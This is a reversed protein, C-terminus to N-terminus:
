PAAGMPAAPKERSPLLLTVITGQGTPSVISMSGNMEWVISRCISLGLGNGHRKTSFFPEQVRALQEAPIGSGTDALVLEVGGEQVRRARITLTGGAPMAERANTALNLILQELEGQAGIVHPMREPVSVDLTIAHRRMGDDLVALTTQVAAAVDGQGLTQASSRAFSLMGGFIRRCVRVSEELQELDKGLVALLETPSRTTQRIDARMQQVLPLVAGLANNIDHSVGRALNAMAHKREAQMMGHELSAARRQTWFAIAAQPLFRRVLEVEYIGFTHPQITAVKLVGLTGERTTLPALLMAGERRRGDPVNYDLAEALEVGGRGDWARWGEEVRDFGTVVDAELLCRVRDSLSRVVGIRRSKGKRWAIQEAVLELTGEDKDYTLLASSHDYRTLQRLGHLIQYFLDEPRLQEMIKRDIRARVEVVRQKDLRQVSRSLTRAVLAIERHGADDFAGATRVILHAWVRGRREIPAMLLQPPLKPRRAPQLYRELVESWESAQPFRFRPDPLRKGPRMVAICSEDASFFERTLRAAIKHAKDSGRVGELQEELEARFEQLALRRM